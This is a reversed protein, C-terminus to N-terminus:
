GNTKMRTRRPGMTPPLPFSARRRWRCSDDLNFRCSPKIELVAVRPWRKAVMAGPGRHPPLARTVEDKAAVCWPAAAATTAARTPTEKRWSIGLTWDTVGSARWLIICSFTAKSHDEVWSVESRQYWGTSHTCTSDVSKAFSDSM